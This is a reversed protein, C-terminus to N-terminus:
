SSSLFAVEESSPQPTLQPSPPRHPQLHLCSPCASSYQLGCSLSCAKNWIRWFGRTPPWFGRTPSWCALTMIVCKKALPLGPIKSILAKHKSTLCEVVSAMSWGRKSKKFNNKLYPSVTTDLFAESWLGVYAKWTTPIVSTVLWQSTHQFSTKSLGRERSAPRL